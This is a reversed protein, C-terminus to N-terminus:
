INMLTKKSGLCLSHNNKPLWLAIIPRPKSTRILSEMQSIELLTFEVAALTARQDLCLVESGFAQHYKVHAEGFRQEWIEVLREYNQEKAIAINSLLKRAPGRLNIVLSTAKGEGDM